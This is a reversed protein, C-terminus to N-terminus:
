LGLLTHDCGAHAEVQPEARAEVRSAGQAVDLAEVCPEGWPGQTGVRSRGRTKVCVKEPGGGPGWAPGGRGAGPGGADLGGAPLSRM